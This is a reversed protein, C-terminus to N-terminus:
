TAPCNKFFEDFKRGIGSGAGMCITSIHAPADYM